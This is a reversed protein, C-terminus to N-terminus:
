AAPTSGHRHARLAELMAADEATASEVITGDWGLRRAATVVRPGPALLTTQRARQADAAELRALFLELVEQSTVAIVCDAGAALADRLERRSDADVDAPRRLYVELEVVEAGRSNLEERLLARGGRGKVILIRQGRPEAFESLALIGESSASDPRAHVAQGHAELARATARGIAAIRANPFSPVWRLGHAVANTSTYVIWDVDRAAARRQQATDPPVPEIVIAPMAICRGGDARALAIFPEAQAAPRTVVLTVGSLPKNV